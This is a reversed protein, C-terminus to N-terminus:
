LYNQRQMIEEETQAEQRRFAEQRQLRVVEQLSNNMNQTRHRAEVWVERAQVLRQEIAANERQQQEIVSQLRNLFLQKRTREAPDIKASGQASRMAELYESFYANLQTYKSMGADLLASYEAVTTAVAQEESRLVASM